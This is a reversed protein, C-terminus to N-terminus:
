MNLKVVNRVNWREVPAATPLMVSVSGTALWSGHLRRVYGAGDSWKRLMPKKKFM